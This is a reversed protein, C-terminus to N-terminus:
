ALTAFTIPLDRLQEVGNVTTAPDHDGVSCDQDTFTVWDATRGDESQAVVTGVLGGLLALMVTGVLSLRLTRM